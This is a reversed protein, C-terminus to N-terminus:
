VRVGVAGIGVVTRRALRYDGTEGRDEPLLDAGIERGCVLGTEGEGAFGEEGLEGRELGPLGEVVRGVAFVAGVEEDGLIAVEGMMEEAKWAGAVVTAGLLAMLFKLGGMDDIGEEVAGVHAVGEERGRTVADGVAAGEGEAEDLEDHAGVFVGRGVAEGRFGEGAAPAAIVPGVVGAEVDM